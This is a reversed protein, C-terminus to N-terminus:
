DNVIYAPDRTIYYYTGRNHLSHFLVNGTTIVGMHHTEHLMKYTYSNNKQFVYTYSNYLKSYLHINYSVCFMITQSLYFIMHTFMDFNILWNTKKYRDVLVYRLNERRNNTFHNTHKGKTNTSWDSAICSCVYLWLIIVFARQSLCMM